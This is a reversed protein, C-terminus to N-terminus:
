TLKRESQEDEQRGNTAEVKTTYTSAKEIAQKVYKIFTKNKKKVKCKCRDEMVQHFWPEIEIATCEIGYATCLSAVTGRGGFCDLVTDGPRAYLYLLHEMVWEATCTKHGYLTGNLLDNCKFMETGSGARHRRKSWNDTLIEMKDESFVRSKIQDQYFKRGAINKTYVSISLTGAPLGYKRQVCSNTQIQVLDVRHIMKYLNYKIDERKKLEIETNLDMIMAAWNLLVINGTSSVIRVAEDIWRMVKDPSWNFPPDIIILDVSGFNAKKCYELSDGCLLSSSRVKLIDSMLDGLLFPLAM